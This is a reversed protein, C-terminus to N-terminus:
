YHLFMQIFTMLASAKSLKSSMECTMRTDKIIVSMNKSALHIVGSPLFHRLDLLAFSTVFLPTKMTVMNDYNDYNAFANNNVHSFEVCNDQRKKQSQNHKGQQLVSYVLITPHSSM